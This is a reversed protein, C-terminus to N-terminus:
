QRIKLHLTKTKKDWSIVDINDFDVTQYDVEPNNKRDKLTKDNLYVLNSKLIFRKLETTPTMTEIM